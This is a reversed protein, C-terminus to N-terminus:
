ICMYYHEATDKMVSELMFRDFEGIYSIRDNLVSDITDLKNQNLRRNISYSLLKEKTPSICTLAHYYVIAECYIFVSSEDPTHGFSQRFEKM